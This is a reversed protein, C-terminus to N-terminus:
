KVVVFGLAKVEPDSRGHVGVVLHGQASLSGPSGGKEDGLWPSNYSDGPDLRDGKIKMFVMDFGDIMLGSRNRIAGVAYGPKAIATTELGTFVGHREGELLTRGIRFIPQLSGIKSGGFANVYGVRVGVLVGGAPAVDRFANQNGGFFETPVDALQEPPYPKRRSASGTTVPAAPKPKPEGTALSARETLSLPGPSVAIEFDTPAIPQGHWGFFQTRNDGHAQHGFGSGAYYHVFEMQVAVKGRGSRDSGLILPGEAIGLHCGGWSDENTGCWRLPSTPDEHSTVAKGLRDRTLPVILTEQTDLRRLRLFQMDAPAESLPIARTEGQSSTNWARPNRGRFLVLWRGAGVQGTTRSARSLGKVPELGTANRTALQRTEVISPFADVYV